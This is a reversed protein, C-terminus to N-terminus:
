EVDVEGGRLCEEEVRLEDAKEGAADPSGRVVVLLVLPEGDM